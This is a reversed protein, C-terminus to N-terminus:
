RHAGESYPQTFALQVFADEFDAKCAQDCLAQVTGSAVSRGNSLIVVHDCLSEVEPMVHSCLVICKNTRDRLDRLLARLNRVAIVDLGNTPEDLILNPPDHILARALATKMREGQSFGATRRDLLSRMELMDALVEVREAIEAKGLGYLRGFYAINERATLRTYLGREDSLVGLRERSARHASVPNMGDVLVEGSDPHLLGSVVRLTTTKGAGNGGLLGTIRADEAQFDVGDLAVVTRRASGTGSHFTKTLRRVDILPVGQHALGWM